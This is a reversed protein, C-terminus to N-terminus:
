HQTWHEKNIRHTKEKNQILLTFNEGLQMLCQVEYSIITSTSNVLWNQRKSFIQTHQHLIRTWYQNQGGQKHKCPSPFVPSNKINSINTLKLKDDPASLSSHYQTTTTNKIDTYIQKQILNKIKKLIKHKEHTFLSHLASEQRKFFNSYVYILLHKSIERVLRYVKIHARNLAV